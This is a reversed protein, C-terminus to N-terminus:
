FVTPIFFYRNDIFLSCSSCPIFNDVFQTIGISFLQFILIKFEMKLTTKVYIIRNTVVKTYIKYFFYSVTLPESEKKTKNYFLSM